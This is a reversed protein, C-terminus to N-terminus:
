LCLNASTACSKKRQQYLDTTYYDRMNQSGTCIYVNEPSYIGVDNKRAMCYGFGRGRENWKGSEQWICWWTYVTFAWGIKRTRANRQQYRYALRAELPIARYQGYTCGFKDIYRNNRETIKAARIAVSRLYAGGDKRSLNNAKLIQQIRQRTLGHSAAIDPMSVGDIFQKIIQSYDRSM